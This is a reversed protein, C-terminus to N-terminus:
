HRTNLMGPPLADVSLCIPLCARVCVRVCKTLRLATEPHMDSERVLRRLSALLVDHLTKLDRALPAVNVGAGRDALATATHFLTAMTAQM